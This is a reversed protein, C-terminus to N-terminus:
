TQYYPVTGSLKSYTIRILAPEIFRAAARSSANGAQGSFDFIRPIINSWWSFTPCFPRPNESDPSAAPEASVPPILPNQWRLMAAFLGDRRGINLQHLLLYKVSPPIMEHVHPHIRIFLVLAIRM